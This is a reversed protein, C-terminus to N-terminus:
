SWFDRRYSIKYHKQILFTGLSYSENMLRDDDRNDDEKQGQVQRKLTLLLYVGCPLKQFRHLVEQIEAIKDNIFSMTERGILSRWNLNEM